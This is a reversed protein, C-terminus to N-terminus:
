ESRRDGQRDGPQCRKRSRDFPPGDSQAEANRRADSQKKSDVGCGLCRVEIRNHREPILSVRRRARSESRLFVKLDKRVTNPTTIPTAVTIPIDEIILPSFVLIEDCIASRPEFKIKTCRIGGVIPPRM